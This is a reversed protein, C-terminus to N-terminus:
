KPRAPIVNLAASLEFTLLADWKTFPEGACAHRLTQPCLACRQREVEAAINVTAVVSAMSAGVISEARINAAVLSGTTINVGTLNVVISATVSNGVPINAASLNVVTNAAVLSQVTSAVVMSVVHAVIARM